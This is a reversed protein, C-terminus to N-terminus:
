LSTEPLARIGYACHLARGLVPDELTVRFGDGYGFEGGIIPITGSFVAHPATDGVRGGVEALLARPALMEALVGDQYSQWGKDTRVQARLLLEDWHGELESLPWLTAGVPKECAQKAKVVSSAELERDTHDSAVGVLVAGDTEFLVFEAEGATRDGIVEIRDATTLRNGSVAFVSPVRQPPAIGHGALEEIHAAVAATDRGTYGALLLLEPRLRVERREDKTELTYHM